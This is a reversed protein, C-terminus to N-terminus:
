NPDTACVREDRQLIYDFRLQGHIRSVSSVMIMWILSTLTM